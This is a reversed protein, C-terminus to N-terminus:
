SGSYFLPQWMRTARTFLASGSSNPTCRHDTSDQIWKHQVSAGDLIEAWSLLVLGKALMAVRVLEAEFTSSGPFAEGFHRTIKLAVEPVKAQLVPLVVAWSAWYAAQSSRAASRLGIGGLRGPLSAVQWAQVDEYKDPGGFLNCFCEWIARDHRMAYGKSLSPPVM